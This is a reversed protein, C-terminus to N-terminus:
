LGMALWCTVVTSVPQNWSRVRWIVALPVLNYNTILHMATEKSDEM